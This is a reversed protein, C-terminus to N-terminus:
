LDWRWDMPAWAYVDGDRMVYGVGPFTLHYGIVPIGDTAVQDFLRRRTAVAQEPDMDFAFYWEPHRFTILDSTITDGLCLLQQDGSSIHISVHGPTHGPTDVVRVGPVIEVDGAVREARDAIPGLNGRTGMVMGHFQEPLAQLSADGTWFAWETERVYYNANPFRPEGTADDIIGWAHDPHGHTLVVTDIDAPDIGAARLNTVLRGATEQFNAGSGTDALVLHDGTNVLTVNTQVAVADPNRHHRRLLDVLEQEPANPVIGTAPGVELHGDSVSMVEFDGVRFRFFGPAQSGVAVHGDARAGRWPVAAVTAAAGAAIFASRRSLTISM